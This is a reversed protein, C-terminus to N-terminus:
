IDSLRINSRFPHEKFLTAIWDIEDVTPGKAVGNIFQGTWLETNNEQTLVAQGHPYGKKFHTSFRYGNDDWIVDGKGHAHGRRFIGKIRLGIAPRLWLAEGSVSGNAFQGEITEGSKENSWLGLGSAEGQRFQGRYSEGGEGYWIGEGHYLGGEYSGNYHVQDKKRYLVGQKPRGGEDVTGVFFSGDGFHYTLCSAVSLLPLLLSPDLMLSTKEGM